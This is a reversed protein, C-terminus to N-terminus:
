NEATPLSRGGEPEVSTGSSAEVPGSLIAWVTLGSLGLSAILAPVTVVMAILGFTREREVPSRRLRFAFFVAICGTGVGVWIVPWTVAAVIATGVALTLRQSAAANNAAPTPKIRKRSVSMHTGKSL